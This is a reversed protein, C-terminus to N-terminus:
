LEIDYSAAFFVLGKTQAIEQGYFIYDTIIENASASLGATTLVLNVYGPYSQTLKEERLGFQFRWSKDLRYQLALMWQDISLTYGSTASEYTATLASGTAVASIKEQTATGSWANSSLIYSGLVSFEGNIRYELDIGTYLGSTSAEFSSDLTKGIIGGGLTLEDLSFNKSYIRYGLKPTLLLKDDALHFRYGAEYDYDSINYDMLSAITVSPGTAIANFKYEPNYQSYNGRLVLDGSGIKKKYELGLPYITNTTKNSWELDLRGLAFGAGSPTILDDLFLRQEMEPDLEGPWYGVNISVTDASLATSALLLTGALIGFVGSKGNIYRALKMELRRKADYNLVIDESVLFRTWLGIM